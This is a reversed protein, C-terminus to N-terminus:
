VRTLLISESKSFGLPQCIMGLITSKATGNQGAILTINKGIQIETDSAFTRFQLIKLSKITVM